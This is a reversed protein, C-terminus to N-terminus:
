RRNASASQIDMRIQEKVNYPHYWGQNIMYNSVKEHFSVADDFQRRLVDRVAPSTTESLAMACGTIGTKASNLLDTAIVQDSLKNMGTLDELASKM